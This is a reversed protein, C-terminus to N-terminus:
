LLALLRERAKQRSFVKQELRKEQLRGLDPNEFGKFSGPVNTAVLTSFLFLELLWFQLWM